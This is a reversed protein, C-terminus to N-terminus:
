GLVIGSSLQSCPHVHISLYISLYMCPHISLHIICPHVSVFINSLHISLNICLHILLNSPYINFPCMCPYMFPHISAHVCPLHICAHSSNCLFVRFVYLHICSPAIAISIFLVYMFLHIFLHMSLHILAYMCPHVSLSINMLHVLFHHMSPDISISPYVLICVHM